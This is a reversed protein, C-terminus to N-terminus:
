RGTASGCVIARTAAARTVTASAPLAERVAALLACNRDILVRNLGSAPTEVVLGRCGYGTLDFGRQAGTAATFAIQYVELNDNCIDALNARPLGEVIQEIRAASAGRLRVSVPGTAAFLNSAAYGTVEARDGATSPGAPSTKLLFLGGAWALALVVVVAIVRAYMTM